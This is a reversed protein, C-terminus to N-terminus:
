DKICKENNLIDVSVIEFDTCVNQDNVTGIGRVGLRFGSGHFEMLQKLINGMPTDLVKIDGVVNNGEIRVGTIMHSVREFNVSLGTEDGVGIALEGLAKGEDIKTQYDAIAKEMAKRDYIVGNINPQDVYAVLLGTIKM